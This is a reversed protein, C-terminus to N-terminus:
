GGSAARRSSQGQASVPATSLFPLANGAGGEGAVDGPPQRAAHASAAMDGTPGRPWPQLARSPAGGPSATQAHHVGGFSHRRDVADRAVAPPFVPACLLSWPRIRECVNCCQLM